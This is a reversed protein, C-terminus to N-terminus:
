IDNWLKKIELTWLCHETVQVKEYIPETEEWEMDTNFELIYFM